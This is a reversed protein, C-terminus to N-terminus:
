FKVKFLPKYGKVYGTEDYIEYGFTISHVKKIFTHNPKDYYWAEQFQYKSVIKRSYGEKSEIQKIDNVSLIKQTEYDYALLKGKYLDDFISDTLAERKLQSLCKETWVDDKNPNKVVMDCVITDAFSKLKLSDISVSVNTINPTISHQLCSICGVCLLIFVGFTKMNM